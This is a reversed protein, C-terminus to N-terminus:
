QVHPLDEDESLVQETCESPIFQRGLQPICHLACYISLFACVCVCFIAKRKELSSATVMTCAQSLQTTQVPENQGLPSNGDKFLRPKSGREPCVTKVELM